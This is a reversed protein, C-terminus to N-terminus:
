TRFYTPLFELRCFGCCSGSSANQLATYLHPRKTNFLLVADDIAKVADGKSKFSGGLGYEQKLIGNVRDALANEYCHAEGTMSIGFEHKRLADVYAHCCYQWDRDSHRAPHEGEGLAAVAQELACLTGEADLTDVARCGTIKRSRMDSILALCIFGEDTRIYTIGSAWAQNRGTLAMDKVLNHFM